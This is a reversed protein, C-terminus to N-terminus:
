AIICVRWPLECRLAAVAYQQREGVRMAGVGTRHEDRAQFAGSDHESRARSAYLDGDNGDIRCAVCGRLHMAKKRVEFFCISRPDDSQRSAGRLDGGDLTRIVDPRLTHRFVMAAVIDCM